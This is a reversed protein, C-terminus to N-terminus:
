TPGSCHSRIGPETVRMIISRLPYRQREFILGLVTCCVLTAVITLILRAPGHPWKNLTASTTMIIPFHFLYISLTLGAAFEIISRFRVFVHELRDSVCWAGYFHVAVSLGLVYAWLFKDCFKWKEPNVDAGILEAGASILARNWHAMVMLGVIAPPLIFCAWAANGRIFRRRGLQYVVVGLLWIPFLMVIRPGAVLAAVAVGVYKWNRPAFIIVGFFVYYWFEFGISWVPIDSLPAISLFWLENVFLASPLLRWPSSGPAIWYDWGAYITPDAWMGVRDALYTLALAPILVSWLRALRSSFYLRPHIEKTNTVYSIVLGSLVFFVVVADNGLTGTKLWEGGFKPNSAHFLVVALAACVRVLDLYLSIGRGFTGPTSM